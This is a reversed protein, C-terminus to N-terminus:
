YLFVKDVHPLIVGGADGSLVEVPQQHHRPPGCVFNYDTSKRCAYLDINDAVGNKTWGLYICKMINWIILM